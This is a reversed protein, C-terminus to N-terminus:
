KKQKRHMQVYIHVATLRLPIAAATIAFIISIYDAKEAKLKQFKLSQWNLTFTLAWRLAVM